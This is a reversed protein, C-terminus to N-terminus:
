HTIHHFHVKFCKRIFLFHHQLLINYSFLSTDSSIQVGKQANFNILSYNLVKCKIPVIGSLLQSLIDAIEKFDKIEKYQANPIINSDESILDNLIGFITNFKYIHEAELQVELELLDGRAIDNVYLANQNHSIDSKLLEQPNKFKKNIAEFEKILILTDKQFDYFEKFTSQASAKRLIQTNQGYNFMAGAKAEKKPMSKDSTGLLVNSELQLNKSKAETFDTAIAGVRSSFLSYVSIEDLYVFERLPNKSLKKKLKKLKKLKLQRKKSKIFLLLKKM